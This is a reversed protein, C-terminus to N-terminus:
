NYKNIAELHGKEAEKETAYNKTYLSEWDEVEGKKDCKFVMTEYEGAVANSNGFGSSDLMNGLEDLLQCTDIYVYGTKTKVIKRKKM